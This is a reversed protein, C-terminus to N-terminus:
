AAEGRMKLVTSLTWVASISSPRSSTLWCHRHFNM